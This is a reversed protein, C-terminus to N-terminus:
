PEVLLDEYYLCGLGGWIGLGGQINSKVVTPPSFPGGGQINQSWTNWFDYHERDTTCWRIGAKEHFRYLDSNPLTDGPDSGAPLWFDTIPQGDFLIVSFSANDPTKFDDEGRSTFYRYFNDEGAPDTFNVLLRYLSDEDIPFPSNADTLEEFWISDLPVLPPITTQSSIVKGEAEIRLRYTKGVEGAMLFTTYVVAVLSDQGPVPIQFESLVVSDSGTSVTVRAGKVFLNNLDALNLAAFYPLDRTLIVLPSGGNEIYGEVVISEEGDPLNVTIEQECALFLLSLFFFGWFRKPMKKM